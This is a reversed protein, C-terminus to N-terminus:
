KFARDLRKRNKRERFYDLILKFGKRPNIDDLVVKTEPLYIDKKLDPHKYGDNGWFFWYVDIHNPLKELLDIANDDLYHIYVSSIPDKKIKQVIKDLALFDINDVQNIHKVDVRKVMSTYCQDEMGLRACREIFHDVYFPSDIFVHMNM